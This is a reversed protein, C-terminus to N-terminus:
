GSWSRSRLLRRGAAVGPDPLAETLAGPLRGNTNRYRVVQTAMIYIDMGSGRPGRRTRRGDRAEGRSERASRDVLMNCGHSM